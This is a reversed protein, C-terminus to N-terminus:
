KWDGDKRGSHAASRSIQWDGGKRGPGCFLNDSYNRLAMDTSCDREEESEDYEEEEDYEIGGGCSYVGNSTCFVHLRELLGGALRSCRTTCAWRRPREWWMEGSVSRALLVSSLKRESSRWCRTPLELHKTM